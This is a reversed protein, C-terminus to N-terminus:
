LRLRYGVGAITEISPPGASFQRKLFRRLNSVRIDLSRSSRPLSGGWVYQRLRERTVTQGAFRYLYELVEFDKRPLSERRGGIRVSADELVLEFAPSLTQPQWRLVRRAWRIWDPLTAPSGMLSSFGVVGGARVAVLLDSELAGTDLLVIPQQPFRQRLSLFSELWPEGAAALVVLADASGVLAEDEGGSFVALGGSEAREPWARRAFGGVVGLKTPVDELDRRPTVRSPAVTAPQFMYGIRSVTRVLGAVGLSQRLRRRLRSVTADVTREDVSLDNNWVEALLTDRGVVQGPNAALLALVDFERPSLVVVREGKTALRGVADLRLAVASTSPQSRQGLFRHVWEASVRPSLVYSFLGRCNGALLKSGEDPALGSGLAFLPQEPRFRSLNLAWDLRQQFDPARREGVDVLLAEAAAMTADVAGGFPVHALHRGRAALEHSWTAFRADEQGVYTIISRTTTM